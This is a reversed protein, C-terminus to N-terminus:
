LVKIVTSKCYSKLFILLDHEVDIHTYGEILCEDTQNVLKAYCKLVGHVVHLNTAILDQTLFFGSGLPVRNGNALKMELTVTSQFARKAIEQPTPSIEM